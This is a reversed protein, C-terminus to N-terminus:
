SKRFTWQANVSMKQEKNATESVKSDWYFDPLCEAIKGFFM